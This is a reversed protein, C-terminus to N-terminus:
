QEEKHGFFNILLSLCITGVCAFAPIIPLMYRAQIGSWSSADLIGFLAIRAALATMVLVFVMAVASLSKRRIGLIAIGAVELLCIAYGVWDYITCLIPLWRDARRTKSNTALIDVGVGANLDGGFTSVKGASLEALAVSGKRGDPTWFHLESAPETSIASISFPYAGPVDQRQPATLRAWSYTTSGTGLGVLTGVPLITWGAIDYRPPPARRGTLRAFQDFQGASANERPAELSGVHPAVVLKAIEFVGRPVDPMWKGM